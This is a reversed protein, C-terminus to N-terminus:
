SSKWSTSAILPAMTDHTRRQIGDPIAKREDSEQIVGINTHSSFNFQVSAISSGEVM